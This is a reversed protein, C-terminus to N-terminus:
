VPDNEHLTALTSFRSRYEVPSSSPEEDSSLSGQKCDLRITEPSSSYDRKYELQDEYTKGSMGSDARHRSHQRGECDCPVEREFLLMTRPTKDRRQVPVIRQSGDEILCVFRWGKSGKIRSNKRLQSSVFKSVIEGCHDADTLRFSRLDEDPDFDVDDVYTFCWGDNSARAHFGWDCFVIKREKFSVPCQPGTPRRSQRKFLGFM